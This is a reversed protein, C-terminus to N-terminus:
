AYKTKMLDHLIPIDAPAWDLQELEKSIFWRADKHESLILQGEKFQTVIPILNISFSGYDFFSDNMKDIIVVDINLEEKLERLICDEASENEMLKGGPFEWKLPLSMKESRQAALIKGENLIIACAVNIHKKVEM